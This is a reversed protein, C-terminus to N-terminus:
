LLTVLTQRECGPMSSGTIIVSSTTMEAPAKSWDISVWFVRTRKRNNREKLVLFLGTLIQNQRSFEFPTSGRNFVDIYVSKSVLSTSNCSLHSIPVVARGPHGTAGEIAIGMKAEAPVNIEEVKPMINKQPPNWATFGIHRADMMHNWKGNAMTKNYYNSLEADQKFLDSLKPPLNM